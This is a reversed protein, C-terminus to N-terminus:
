RRQDDSSPEVLSPFHLSPSPLGTLFEGYEEVNEQRDVDVTRLLSNRESLRSTKANSGDFLDVTVIRYSSLAFFTVYV